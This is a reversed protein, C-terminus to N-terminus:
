AHAGEAEPTQLHTDLQLRKLRAYAGGKSLLEVHSGTEIIRGQELVVLRNAKQLTSLRHAIAITTRGRTLNELALQIEHETEADVSSTAEDLILIRPDILLARAISVRQREGGSLLQGREGVLSDYGNPLKLIFEHAHAAKAAAIIEQSSAEQRGYAINEAVTGYFLFPEQLVLGVNRRYDSVSFRRLDIGDVLICGDTVDYFRCLLNIITTKGAGSQGVLGIMEGPNITLDINQLVPRSGYRFSVGRLELAGCLRGPHVPDIPEAVKPERDLIAFIRRASAAARETASAMRSMSDLRAYFRAIYAVFASLVGVTVSHHFVRYVGIVWVVLVGLDTLLVLVAYFYAWIRNVRDNTRVVRENAHQMRAVEREEQAFAKVVRIGSITDTLISTLEAWARNGMSFGRGLRGQVRFVVAAIFPMPLLTALAMGPDISLLIAATMILMLVDAGFDLMHVSLFFCIRDTDSGIRSILDGTRKRGFYELSLKQLHAYTRRRLDAVVRESVWSLVYMQVWTIAWALVSASVLGLLYWKVLSTESAQGNQYPVLVRDLLPMTLYPPILGCATAALTLVFGLLCMPWYRQAFAVLRFLPWIRRQLIPTGCERCAPEGASIPFGCFECEGKTALQPPAVQAPTEGRLSAGRTELLRHAAPARAATFRWRAITQEPGRLELLGIGREERIHFDLNTTLILTQISPANSTLNQGSHSEVPWEYSLVRRNTLVVLGAAYQLHRDLDPEFFALVAEDVELQEQVLATMRGPLRAGQEIERM